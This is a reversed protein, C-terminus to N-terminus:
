GKKNEIHRRTYRLKAGHRYVLGLQTQEAHGVALIQQLVIIDQFNVERPRQARARREHLGPLPM